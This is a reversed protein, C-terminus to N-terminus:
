LCHIFPNLHIITVNRSRVIRRLALITRLHIFWEYAPTLKPAIRGLGWNIGVIIRKLNDPIRNNYLTDGVVHVEVGLNRMKQVYPTANLYFLIPKFRDKDLYRMNQYVSEFSGGGHNGTEVILVTIKKQM